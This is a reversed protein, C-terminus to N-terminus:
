MYLMKLAVNQHTTQLKNGRRESPGSVIDLLCTPIDPLGAVTDALCPVTDVLGAATDVLCVDSGNAMTGRQPPAITLLIQPLPGSDVVLLSIHM